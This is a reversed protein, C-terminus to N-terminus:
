ADGWKVGPKAIEKTAEEVLQSKSWGRQEAAARILEFTAAPVSITHRRKENSV